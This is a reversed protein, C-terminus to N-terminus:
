KTEQVSIDGNISTLKLVNLGETSNPVSVKGYRSEAQISFKEPALVTIDGDYTNIVASGQFDDLTASGSKLQIYVDQYAGRMSVSALNSRLNVKLSEPILIDVEMSLVKHASLKDYGSNLIEPYKSSLFLKDGKIESYMYIRDYYEGDSRTKVTIRDVPGTRLNIRYIEDGHLVVARIDRADYVTTTQKQAYVSVTFFLFFILRFHM